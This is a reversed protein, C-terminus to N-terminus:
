GNCRSQQKWYVKEQRYIVALSETLEREHQSEATSLCRTEKIIDLLELDHLLSLKRLKITVFNDKSWRRLHVRLWALKKALVFAGCGQTNYGAWWQAVLNSFGEVTTWVLEFCFQRHNACHIGVELRIPVYDSGLRLLYNQILRPFCDAWARDVLFRDLKVWILNSKGNMWTFRRGIAPPELLCLDNLFTSADRIDALNLNGGLKDELSVIANFDGCIM